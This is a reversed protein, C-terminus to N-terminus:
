NDFHVGTLELRKVEKMTKGFAVMESQLQGTHSFSQAPRVAELYQACRMASDAFRRLDSYMFELKVQFYKNM